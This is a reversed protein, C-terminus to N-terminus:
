RGHGRASHSSVIVLCKGGLTAVCLSVVVEYWQSVSM